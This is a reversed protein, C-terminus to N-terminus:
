NLPIRNPGTDDRHAPVLHMAARTRRHDAATWTDVVCALRHVEADRCRRKHVEILYATLVVLALSAVGINRPTPNAHPDSMMIAAVGAVGIVCCLITLTTQVPHHQHRM